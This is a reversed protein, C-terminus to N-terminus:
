TTVTRPRLDGSACPFPFVMSLDRRRFPDHGQLYRELYPFRVRYPDKPNRGTRYGQSLGLFFSGEPVKRSPRRETHRRPRRRSCWGLSRDKRFRPGRPVPLCARDPIQETQHAEEPGPEGPFRGHGRRLDASAGISQASLHHRLPDRVSRDSTVDLSSTFALGPV